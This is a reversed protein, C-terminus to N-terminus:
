ETPTNVIILGKLFLTNEVITPKLPLSKKIVIDRNFDRRDESGRVLTKHFSEELLKNSMVIRVIWEHFDYYM